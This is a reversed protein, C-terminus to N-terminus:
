SEFRYRLEVGVRGPPSGLCGQRSRQSSCPHRGSTSLGARSGVRVRVRIMYGWGVRVTATSIGVLQMCGAPGTVGKGLIWGRRVRVRVRIRVRDM